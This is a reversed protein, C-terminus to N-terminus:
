KSYLKFSDNAKSTNVVNIKGDFNSNLVLFFGLFVGIIISAKTTSHYIYM